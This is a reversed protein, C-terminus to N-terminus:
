ERTSVALITARTPRGRFDMGETLGEFYGADPEDLSDLAAFMILAEDFAQDYLDWFSETRAKGTGPDTWPRHEENAFPSTELLENRYSMAQLYSHDRVLREMKGLLARKLGRPSHLLSLASRYARLSRTFADQPIDMGYAEAVVRKYLFSVCRAAKPTLSLVAGASGMEKITCGKKVSLALVDLESEIHAHVERADEASLGEVGANALEEQQAYILPHTCADLLYHCAFGRLYARGIPALDPPLELVARAFSTLLPVPDSRHMRQAMKWVSTLTPDMVSYFLPDPGQCGVLFAEYADKGCGIVEFRREYIEQGFLHHTLAAPM